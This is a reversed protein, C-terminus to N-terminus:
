QPARLLGKSLSPKRRQWSPKVPDQELLYFTRIQDFVWDRKLDEPKYAFALQRLNYIRFAKFNEKLSEPLELEAIPESFFREAGYAEGMRILRCLFRFIVWDQFHQYGRLLKYNLETLDILVGSQILAQQFSVAFGTKRCHDIFAIEESSLFCADSKSWEEWSFLYPTIRRNLKEM